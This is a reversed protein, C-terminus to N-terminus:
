QFPFGHKSHFSAKSEVRTDFPINEEDQNCADTRHLAQHFDEEVEEKEEEEGATGSWIFGRVPGGANAELQRGNQIIICWNANVADIDCTLM